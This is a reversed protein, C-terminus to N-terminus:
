DAWFEDFLYSDAQYVTVETIKQHHIEFEVAVIVNLDKGDLRGNSCCRHTGFIDDLPRM